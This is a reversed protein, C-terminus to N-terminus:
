GLQGFRHQASRPPSGARLRLIENLQHLLILTLVLGLLGRLELLQPRFAYSRDPTAINAQHTETASLRETLM